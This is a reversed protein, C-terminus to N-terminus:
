GKNSLPPPAVAQEISGRRFTLRRPGVVLAGTEMAVLREVAAYQGADRGEHLREVADRLVSHINELHHTTYFQKINGWVEHAYGHIEDSQHM